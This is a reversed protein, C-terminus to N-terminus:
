GIVTTMMAAPDRDGAAVGRPAVEDIRALDEPTLRIEAAALGEEPSACRKIGGPM